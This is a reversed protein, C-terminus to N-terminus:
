LRWKLPTPQKSYEQFMKLTPQPAPTTNLYNQWQAIQNRQTNIHQILQQREQILLKGEQAFVENCGIMFNALTQPQIQAYLANLAQPNNNVILKNTAPILEDRVLTTPSIGQRAKQFELNDLGQQKAAVLTPCQIDGTIELVAQSTIGVIIGHEGDLDLM